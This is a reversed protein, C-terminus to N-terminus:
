NMRREAALQENREEIVNQAHAYRIKTSKTPKSSLWGSRLLLLELNDILGEDPIEIEAVADLITKPDVLSDMEMSDCIVQSLLQKATEPGFTDWVQKPLHETIYKEAAIGIKRTKEM